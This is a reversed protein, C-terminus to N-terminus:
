KFTLLRWLLVFIRTLHCNFLQFKIGHFTSYLMVNHISIVFYVFIFM